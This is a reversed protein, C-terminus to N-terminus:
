VIVVRPNVLTPERSLGTAATHVAGVMASAGLGAMAAIFQHLPNQGALAVAADKATSDVVITGGHGDSSAVFTATTYDGRLNIHATNSGDTVTLVGSRTTGSFTAETSGVFGIDGLDLSTAGNTSFGTINATYTKSQALHLGGTAGTFTVRDNFSSALDLTGGNIVAAGGGTVAGNVVLTGGDAALRGTSTNILPGAITLVGSGTTQIMGANTDKATASLNLIGADKVTQGAATTVVGTDTFTAGASIVVTGFNQFTTTAMSGSITVNGGAAFLGSIAGTGSLLDLTGGAGLVAGVFSSGAGVRLMDTAAAFRVAEGGTGVISGFNTVTSDGGVFVSYYGEVLARTNNVAGNTLTAYGDMAVGISPGAASYTGLITGANVVFADVGVIDVGTSGQILATHDRASGNTVRGGSQLLVGYESASITGYNTVVAAANTAQVGRLAQITATTDNNAGNVVAGGGYLAVGVGIDGTVLAFNDVTGAGGSISVGGKGEIVAAHSGGSGNRVVGGADLYMGLGANRVGEIVGYDTVSGAVYKMILGYLGSIQAHTYTPSGNVILGGGYMGIAGVSGGSISGHNTITTNYSAGVGPAGVTGTSTILLDNGDQIFYGGAYYSSIVKTSMTTEKWGPGDAAIRSADPREAARPHM